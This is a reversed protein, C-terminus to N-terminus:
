RRSLVRVAARSARLSVPRNLQHDRYLNIQQAPLRILLLAVVQVPHRNILRSRHLCDRRFLLRFARLPLRQSSPLVLPLSPHRCDRPFALLSLLQSVLQPQHQSCLLAPLHFIRRYVQRFLPLNSHRPRHRSTVPFDPRSAQQSHLRFPPLSAPQSVPLSRPRCHHHFLPQCLPHALLLNAPPFPLHNTRRFAQPSPHPFHLLSCLRNLRQDDLQNNRHNPPLGPLHNRRHVPLQNLLLSLLQNAPHGPRRNLLRSLLLDEPQSLLPVHRPSTPHSRLLHDLPNLPRPELRGRPLSGLPTLALSRLLTLLQNHQPIRLLSPAQDRSHNAPRNDPRNPLRSALPNIPPNDRPNHRRSQPRSPLLSRLLFPLLNPRQNALLNDLPTLALSRLLTLLQSHHPIRLLSPAQDRSHNVPRNDPRNLPLSAPRFSCLSPLPSAPPSVLLSDLPTVLPNRHLVQRPNVHLSDAQSALPTWFQNLRQSGPQSVPPIRLQNHLQSGRLSLLQNDLLSAVRSPRPLDLEVVM